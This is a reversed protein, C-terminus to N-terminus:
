NEPVTRDSKTPSDMPLSTDGTPPCTVPPTMWVRVRRQADAIQSVNMKQAVNQMGDRDRTYAYALYVFVCDQPTAHGDNYLQALSNAGVGAGGLNITHDAAKRYWYAALEYDQPVGEGNEYMQGLTVQADPQGQKAAMSLWKFAEAYDRKLGDRGQEYFAGLWLQAHVNGQEAAKTWWYVLQKPDKWRGERFVGGYMYEAPAYGQEASPRFWPMASAFESDTPRPSLMSRGLEYEAKADGTEAKSRVADMDNPQLECVAGTQPNVTQAPSAPVAPLFFTALLLFPLASRMHLRGSFLFPVLKEPSLMAM